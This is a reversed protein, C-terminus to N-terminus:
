PRHGAAALLREAQQRRHAALVRAAAERPQGDMGAKNPGAVEYIDALRLIRGGGGWWGDPVECTFICVRLEPHPWSSGEAEAVAQTMEATVAARREDNYEGEPVQCIFRYRPAKPPAGAVYVQPRHVFVWALNRAFENTPDVGEHELLLDTLKAVLEREASPSLAGEPIYADLMPM